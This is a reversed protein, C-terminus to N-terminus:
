EFVMFELQIQQGIKGKQGRGMLGDVLWYCNFTSEIAIGQLENRFPELASIIRQLENSVRM